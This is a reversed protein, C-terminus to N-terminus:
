KWFEWWKKKEIERIAPEENKLEQINKISEDEQYTPLTKEHFSVGLDIKLKNKANEDCMIFAIFEEPELCNVNLCALDDQLMSLLENIFKPNLSTWERKQFEYNIETKRGMVVYKCIYEFNGKLRDVENWFEQEIKTHNSDYIPEFEDIVEFEFSGKTIRNLEQFISSIKNYFFYDGFNITSIDNSYREQHKTNNLWACITGMERLIIWNAIGNRSEFEDVQKLFGGTKVDGILKMDFDIGIKKIKSIIEKVTEM